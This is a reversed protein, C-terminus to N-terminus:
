PLIPHVPEQPVATRHKPLSVTKKIRDIDKFINFRKGQPFHKKSSSNGFVNFRKQQFRKQSSSNGFISASEKSLKKDPHIISFYLLSDPM